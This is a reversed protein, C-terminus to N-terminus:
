MKRTAMTLMHVTPETGIAATAPAVRLVGVERWAQRDASRPARDSALFIRRELTLLFPTETSVVRLKQVDFDTACLLQHQPMPAFRCGRKKM